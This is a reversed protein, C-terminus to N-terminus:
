VHSTGFRHLVTALGAVIDVQEVLFFDVITVVRKQLGHHVPEVRGNVRRVFEAEPVLGKDVYVVETDEYLFVIEKRTEVSCTAIRIVWLLLARVRVRLGGVPRANIKVEFVQFLDVHVFTM